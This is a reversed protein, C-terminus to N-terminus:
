LVSCNAAHPSTCIFGPDLSIGLQWSNLCRNTWSQTFYQFVATTLFCGIRPAGTSYCPKFIGCKAGILRQIEPNGMAIPITETSLGSYVPRDGGFNRPAWSPSETDWSVLSIMFTQHKREANPDSKATKQLYKVTILPNRNAKQHITAPKQNKKVSQTEMDCGEHLREEDPALRPEMHFGAAPRFVMTRISSIKCWNAVRPIEQYIHFM